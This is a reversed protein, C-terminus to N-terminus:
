GILCNVRLERCHIDTMTPESAFGPIQVSVHCNYFHMVKDFTIFGVKSGAPLSRIPDPNNDVKEKIPTNPSDGYLAELVGNCSTQLFDNENTNQGVDMVFLWRLGVPEKAWYEKPM